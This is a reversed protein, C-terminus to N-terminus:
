RVSRAPLRLLVNTVPAMVMRVSLMQAGHLLDPHKGGRQGSNSRNSRMRLVQRLEVHVIRYHCYALTNQQITLFARIFHDVAVVLVVGEGDICSTRDRQNERTLEAGFM